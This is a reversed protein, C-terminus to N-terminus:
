SKVCFCFENQSIYELLLAVTM